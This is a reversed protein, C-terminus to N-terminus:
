FFPWFIAVMLGIVVGWLLVTTWSIMRERNSFHFRLDVARGFALRLSEPHDDFILIHRVKGPSANRSLLRSTLGIGSRDNKQM